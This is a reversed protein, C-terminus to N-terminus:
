SDITSLWVKAEEITQTTLQHGSTKTRLSVVHGVSQLEKELALASELPAISDNSSAAIFVPVSPRNMGLIAKCPLMPHFLVAGAVTADTQLLLSAAINAGNSYGVLVMQNEDYGYRIAQDKLFAHLNNTRMALDTQDFVGPALRKFFRNQGQEVVDGRLALIGALPEMRTAITLLDTEDGGTGHLLVFVRGSPSKPALYRHIM